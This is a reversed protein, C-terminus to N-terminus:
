RPFPPIASLNNGFYQSKQLADVLVLAEQHPTADELTFPTQLCGPSYTSWPHYSVSFNILM